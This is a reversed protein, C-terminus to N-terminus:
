KETAVAIAQTKKLLQLSSRQVTGSDENCASDVFGTSSKRLIM